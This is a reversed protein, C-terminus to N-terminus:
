SKRRVKLQSHLGASKGITDDMQRAKSDSLLISAVQISDEVRNSDSTQSERNPDQCSGQIVSFHVCDLENASCINNVVECKIIITIVRFWSIRWYSFSNLSKFIRKSVRITIGERRCTSVTRTGLSIRRTRGM